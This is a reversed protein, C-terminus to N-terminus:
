RDTRTRTVSIRVRGPSRPARVNIDGIASSQTVITGGGPLEIRRSQRTGPIRVEEGGAVIRVYTESTTKM